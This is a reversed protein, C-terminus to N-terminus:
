KNIKLYADVANRSIKNDPNPAINLYKFKWVAQYAYSNEGLETYDYDMKFKGSKNLLFTCNTWRNDSLTDRESELIRNIKAFAALIDTKSIDKLKFCQIYEEDDFRVHYEFSYSSEGFEGYFIIDTWGNPVVKILQEAILKYNKENM